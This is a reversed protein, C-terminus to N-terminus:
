LDEPRFDSDKLKSGIAPGEFCQMGPASGGSRLDGEFRDGSLKGILIETGSINKERFTLSIKLEDHKFTGKIDAQSTMSDMSKSLDRAGFLRGTVKTGKFSLWVFYDVEFDAPTTRSNGILKKVNIRFKWLGAAKTRRQQDDLKDELSELESDLKALTAEAKRAPAPDRQTVQKAPLVQALVSLLIVVILGFANLAMDALMGSQNEDHKM